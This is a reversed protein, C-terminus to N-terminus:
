TYGRDQKFDTNQQLSEQGKVSEHTAANERGDVARSYNAVINFMVSTFIAIAERKRELQENFGKFRGFKYEMIERFHTEIVRYLGMIKIDFQDKSMISLKITASLHTEVIRLIFEAEEDTFCHNDKKKTIYKGHEKNWVDKLGRIERELTRYENDLIYRHFSEPKQAQPLRYENDEIPEQLSDDDEFPNEKEDSEFKEQFREPIKINGNNNQHSKREAINSKAKSKLSNIFNNKM